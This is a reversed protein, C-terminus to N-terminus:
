KITLAYCIMQTWLMFAHLLPLQSLLSDQKPTLTRKDGLESPCLSVSILCLTVASDLMRASASRSLGRGTATSFASAFVYPAAAGSFPTGVGQAIVGNEQIVSQV